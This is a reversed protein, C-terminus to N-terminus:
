ASLIFRRTGIQGYPHPSPRRYTQPERAIVHGHHHIRVHLRRSFILRGQPPHGRTLLTTPIARMRDSADREAEDLTAIESSLDYAIHHFWHPGYRIILRPRIPEDAWREWAEARAVEDRDALDSLHAPDLALEQAVAHIFEAQETGTEELAQLRRAGKNAGRESYGLAKALAQRSLQRARRAARIAKGVQSM